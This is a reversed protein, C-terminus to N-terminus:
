KQDSKQARKLEARKLQSIEQAIAKHELSSAPYQKLIQELEILPSANPSSPAFAASATKVAAASQASKRVPQNQSIFLDDTPKTSLSSEKETGNIVSVKKYLALINDDIKELRENSAIAIQGDPLIAGFNEEFMPSEKSSVKLNEFLIFIKKLKTKEEGSLSRINENSVLYENIKLSDTREIGVKTYYDKLWNAVTAGQELGNVIIKRKGIPVSCKLLIERIKDKFIDRQELDSIDRIRYRLKRELDYDPHSLVFDFNEQLLRFIDQDSLDFLMVYKAAILYNNYITFLAPNNENLKPNKNFIKLIAILFRKAEGVDDASVIYDFVQDFMAIDRQDNLQVLQSKNM